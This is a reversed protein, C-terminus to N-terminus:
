LVVGFQDALGGGDAVGNDDEEDDVFGGTAHVEADELDDELDETTADLADMAAILREVAAEMRERLRYAELARQRALLRRDPRVHITMPSSELNRSNLATRQRRALLRSNFVLRSVPRPAKVKRSSM